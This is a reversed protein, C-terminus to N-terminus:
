PEGPDGDNLMQDPDNDGDTEADPGCAERIAAAIERLWKASETADVSRMIGISNAKHELETAKELAFARASETFSM